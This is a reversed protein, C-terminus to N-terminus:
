DDLLSKLDDIQKQPAAALVTVDVAAVEASASRVVAATATKPATWVDRIDGYEGSLGFHSLGYMDEITRLVNYHDITESYVNPKVNAGYFITPIKNVSTDDDEDWSVILLSNNATAWRAYAGLNIKLWNNAELPSGDHMDHLLDPIVFSVTPLNKFGAATQPFDTFAHHTSSPINTFDSAPDHKTVYEGIDGGTYGDSPLGDAYTAYTHGKAILAEALNSDSFPGSPNDTTVGQTSGSFLALYNPQSPHTEAFSNSFDAGGNALTNFYGLQSNGIIENEAENEEMVVVVHSFKPVYLVHSSFLRREELAELHPGLDPGLDPRM